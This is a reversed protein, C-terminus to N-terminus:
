TLCGFVLVAYSGKLRSLKFEKGEADYGTADPLAEGVKPATREFNARPGRPRQTSADRASQRTIAEKVAEVIEDRTVVGDGDHDFREIFGQERDAVEDPTVTGDRDADLREFMEEPGFAPGPAQQSAVPKMVLLLCVVWAGTFLVNRIRMQKVNHGVRYGKVM